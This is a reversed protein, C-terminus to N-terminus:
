HVVIFLKWQETHNIVALDVPVVIFRLEGCGQQQPMTVVWDSGRYVGIPSYNFQYFGTYDAEPANYKNSLLFYNYASTLETDETGFIDTGIEIFKELYAKSFQNVHGGDLPHRGSLSNAYYNSGTNSRNSMIYCALVAKKMYNYATESIRFATGKLNYVADTWGNYAYM